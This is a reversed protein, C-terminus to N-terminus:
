EGQPGAVLDELRDAFAGSGQVTGDPAIRYSDGQKEVVLLQREPNWEVADVEPAVRSVVAELAAPPLRYGLRGEPFGYHPIDNAQVGDVLDEPPVDTWEPWDENLAAEFAVIVLQETPPYDPNADAATVAEGDVEYTWDQLTEGEPVTVVVAPDPDDDAQDFVRDGPDM